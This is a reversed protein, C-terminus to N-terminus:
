KTFNKQHVTMGELEQLVQWYHWGRPRLYYEIEKDGIKEMGEDEKNWTRIFSYLKMKLLSFPYIAFEPFKIHQSKTIKVKEVFKNLLEIDKNDLQGSVFTLPVECDLNSKIMPRGHHDNYKNDIFQTQSNNNTGMAESAYQYASEITVIGLPNAAGGDLAEIFFDSFYPLTKETNEDKREIVIEKDINEEIAWGQAHPVKFLMHDGGAKVETHPMGATIICLGRPMNYFIGNERDGIDGSHCCDLVLVLSKYECEKALDLLDSVEYKDNIDVHLQLKNGTVGGHMTYYFLLSDDKGSNRLLQEIEYAMAESRRSKRCTTSSMYDDDVLVTEFTNKLAENVRRASKLCVDGVEYMKNGKPYDTFGVIVAKHHAKDDGFYFDKIIQQYNNDM